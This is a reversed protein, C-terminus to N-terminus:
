EEQQRVQMDLVQNRLIGTNYKDITREYKFFISNKNKYFDYANYFYLNIILSIEYQYLM